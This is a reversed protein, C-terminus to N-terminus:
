ILIDAIQDHVKKDAYKIYEAQLTDIGNGSKGNKLRKAVVNVEEGTFPIEVKREDTGAMKNDQDKIQLPRPQKYQM